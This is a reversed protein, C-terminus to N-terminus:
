GEEPRLVASGDMKIRSILSLFVERGVVLRPGNPDKSDRLGVVDSVAAVEVCEDSVGGSHSSKRWAASTFDAGKM